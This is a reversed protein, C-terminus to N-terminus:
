AREAELRRLLADVSDDRREKSPTDDAGAADVLMAALDRVKRNHNASYARLVQWATDSDISYLQVLVGKAQEIVARHEAFDAVARDVQADVETKRFDTLDVLHGTVLLGDSDDVVHGVALLVRERDKADTIRHPFTFPARELVNAERSEWASARDDPHIHSMILATTPVVEGPEFGHIQFMGDSWAWADTSPRYTFWGLVTNTTVGALSSGERVEPM